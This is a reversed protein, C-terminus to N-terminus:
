IYNVAFGKSTYFFKEFHMRSEWNRAIIAVLQVINIKHSLCAMQQVNTPSGSSFLLKGRARVRLSGCVQVIECLWVSACNPMEPTATVCELFFNESCTNKIGGRAWPLLRLQLLLVLAPFNQRSLLPMSFPTSFNHKSSSHTRCAKVTRSWRQCSSFRAVLKSQLSLSLSRGGRCLSM